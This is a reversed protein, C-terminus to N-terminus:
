VKSLLTLPNNEGEGAEEAKKRKIPDEEETYWYTMIEEPSVLRSGSRGRAVTGNKGREKITLNREFTNLVRGGWNSM